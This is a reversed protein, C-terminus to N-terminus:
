GMVPVVMVVVVFFDGLFNLCLLCVHSQGGACYGYTPPPQSTESVGHLHGFLFTFVDYDYHLDRQLFTPSVSTCSRRIPSSMGFRVRCMRLPRRSDNRM